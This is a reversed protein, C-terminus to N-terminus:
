LKCDVFSGVGLARASPREESAARRMQAWFLYVAGSLCCWVWACRGFCAERHSSVDTAEAALPACHGGVLEELTPLTAASGGADVRSLAHQASRAGAGGGDPQPPPPTTAVVHDVSALTLAASGLKLRLCLMASTATGSQWSALRHLCPAGVPCHMAVRGCFAHGATGLSLGVEGLRHPATVGVLYELALLQAIQSTNDDGVAQLILKRKAVQVGLRTEEDEAFLAQLCNPLLSRLHAVSPHQGGCVHSRGQMPFRGAYVPGYRDQLMPTNLAQTPAHPCQLCMWDPNRETLSSPRCPLSLSAPWLLHVNLETLGGHYCLCTGALCRGYCM